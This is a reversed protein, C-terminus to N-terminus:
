MLVELLLNCTYNNLRLWCLLIITALVQLKTLAYSQTGSQKHVDFFLLRFILKRVYVISVIILDDKTCQLRIVNRTNVSLTCCHGSQKKEVGVCVSHTQCVLSSLVHMFTPMGVRDNFKAFISGLKMHEIYWWDCLYITKLPPILEKPM